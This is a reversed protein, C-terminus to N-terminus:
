KAGALRQSISTLVAIAKDRYSKDVPAAPDRPLKSNVEDGIARRLNPLVKTVDGLLITVADHVYKNFDAATAFEKGNSLQKAITAALSSLDEVQDPTGTGALYDKRAALLLADTPDVPPKPDPKPEPPVEGVTIDITDVVIPVLEPKDGSKVLTVVDHGQAIGIVISWAYTKAQFVHHRAAKEGRRIGYISFAQGAPIDLKQIAAPNSSLWLLAATVGKAPEILEFENAKLVLVKPAAAALVQKAADVDKAQISDGYTLAQGWALTPLLLWLALVRLAQIRM